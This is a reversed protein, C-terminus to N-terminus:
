FENLLYAFDEVAYWTLANEIYITDENLKGGYICAGINNEEDENVCNFSLVMGIASKYGYDKYSNLIMENIVNRFKRYFKSTDSYYIFGRFGGQIGYNSIDKLDNLDLTKFIEKYLKVREPFQKFIEQKTM